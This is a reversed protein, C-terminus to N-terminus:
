SDYSVVPHAYVTVGFVYRPIVPDASADPLWALGQDDAVGTVRGTSHQYGQMDFLAARTKRALTHCDFRGDSASSDGWCSVQISAADLWHEAPPIGGIRQVTVCPFTQGQALETTVRGSVLADILTHGGLWDCVILEADPLPTYDQEAM